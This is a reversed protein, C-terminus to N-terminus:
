LSQESQLYDKAWIPPRRKRHSRRLKETVVKGSLQQGRTGKLTRRKKLGLRDPRKQTAVINREFPKSPDSKRSGKNKVKNGPCERTDGTDDSLRIEPNIDGTADDHTQVAVDKRGRERRKMGLKRM